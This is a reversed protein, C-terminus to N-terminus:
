AYYENSQNSPSLYTDSPPASGPNAASDWALPIAQGGAVANAYDAEFQNLAANIQAYQYVQGNVGPVGVM